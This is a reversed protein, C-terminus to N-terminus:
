VYLRKFMKCLSRTDVNLPFLSIGLLNGAITGGTRLTPTQQIEILGGLLKEHRLQSSRGTSHGTLIQLLATKFLCCNITKADAARWITPVGETAM